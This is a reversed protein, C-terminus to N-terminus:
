LYHKLGEVLRRAETRGKRRLDGNSRRERGGDSKGYYGRTAAALILHVAAANQAELTQKTYKKIGKAVM